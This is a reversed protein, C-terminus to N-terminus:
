YSASKVELATVSVTPYTHRTPQFVKCWAVEARKLEERNRFTSTPDRGGEREEEETPAATLPHTVPTGVTDPDDEGCCDNM